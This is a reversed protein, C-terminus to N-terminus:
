GARPPRRRAQPQAALDPAPLAGLPRQWAPLYRRALTMRAKLVLIAKDSRLRSSAGAYHIITAEPTM